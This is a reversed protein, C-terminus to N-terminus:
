LKIFFCFLHKKRASSSVNVAYQLRIPHIWSTWLNGTEATVSSLIIVSASTNFIKLSVLMSRLIKLIGFVDVEAPARKSISKTFSSVFPADPPQKLSATLPSTPSFNLTKNFFFRGALLDPVASGERGDLDFMWLCREFIMIM